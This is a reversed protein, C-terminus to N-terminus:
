RSEHLRKGITRMTARDMDDQRCYVCTDKGPRAKEGCRCLRKKVPPLTNADPKSTYTEGAFTARRHRNKEVCHFCHCGGCACAYEVVEYVCPSAFPHDKSAHDKSELGCHACTPIM